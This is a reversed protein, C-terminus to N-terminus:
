SHSQPPSNVIPSSLLHPSPHPNYPHSDYAILFSPPPPLLIPSIQFPPLSLFIVHSQMVDHADPHRFLRLLRWGLAWGRRPPCFQGLFASRSFSPSFHSFLSLSLPLFFDDFFNLDGGGLPKVRGM